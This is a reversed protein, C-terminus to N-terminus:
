RAKHWYKDICKSLAQDIGVHYIQKNVQENSDDLIPQIKEMNQVVDNEGWYWSFADNSNKNNIDKIIYHFYKKWRTISVYFM